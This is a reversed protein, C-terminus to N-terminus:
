VHARGIESIKNKVNTSISRVGAGATAISSYCCHNFGYDMIPGRDPYFGNELGGISQLFENMQENTMM